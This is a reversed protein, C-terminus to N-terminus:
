TETINYFKANTSIFSFLNKDTGTLFFQIEFRNIMDLLIKRNNSDLHSGIEDFLLIPNINKFNVLYNCQALLITLVVTKQQGTSLLSAEFENNINAVFDTKHPGIKTGGFKKDYARSEQLKSLYKEYTLDNNYFNDKMSLEISLQFKYDKQLTKLNNNLFDLQNHRSNYIELGLSCIDKEIHNCWNEDFNNKQIIKIREIISKKYKNILKNYNNKSSFILRDLFNRRYSPSAQFLREMEPLFILFSISQNLFELSDKSLDDNITIIKKYKNNRNETSIKIDFDNNQIELNSKVTFNKQNIKILNFISSNRIGRGKSILSLGELINTKGSGNKGVFVNLKKDLSIQYNTFNRFNTFNINNIKVL